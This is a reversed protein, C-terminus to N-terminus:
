SVSGSAQSMTKHCLKPKFHIQIWKNSDIKPLSICVPCFLEWLFRLKKPNEEIKGDDITFLMAINTHYM